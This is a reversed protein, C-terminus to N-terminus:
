LGGPVIINLQPIYVHDSNCLNENKLINLVILTAVNPNLNFERHKGHERCIERHKETCLYYTIKLIHVYLHHGGGRVM